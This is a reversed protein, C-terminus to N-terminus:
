RGAKQEGQDTEASELQIGDVRDLADQIQEVDWGAGDIMLIAMAANIAARDGQESTWTRLTRDDPGRLSFKTGYKRPKAKVWWDAGVGEHASITTVPIRTEEVLRRGTETDINIVGRRAHEPSFLQVLAAVAETDTATEGHDADLVHFGAVDFYLGAIDHGTVAETTLEASAVSVSVERMRALMAHLEDAKAAEGNASVWEDDVHRGLNTSMGTKVGLTKLLHDLLYVVSTKGHSGTVGLLKPSDPDTQFVWQGIHGLALSSDEVVLVPVEADNLFSAGQPDTLICCAGRDIALAFEAAPNDLWRSATVFVDGEEVRGADSVVGTVEIQETDYDDQEPELGFEACMESLIRARPHHPRLSTEPM